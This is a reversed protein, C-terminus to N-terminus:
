EGKQDEGTEVDEKKTTSKRPDDSGMLATGKFNNIWCGIRENYTCGEPLIQNQTIYKKAKNLILHENM